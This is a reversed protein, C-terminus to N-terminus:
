RLCLDQALTAEAADARQLASVGSRAHLLQNVSDDAAQNIKQLSGSAEAKRRVRDLVENIEQDMKQRDM